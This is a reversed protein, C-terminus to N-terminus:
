RPTLTITVGTPVGLVTSPGSYARGRKTLRYTIASGAAEVTAGGPTQVLPLDEGLYSLHGAHVTAPAHAGATSTLIYRGDPIAASAHGVGLTALGVAASVAVTSAVIRSKTNM